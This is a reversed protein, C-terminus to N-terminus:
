VPYVSHNGVRPCEYRAQDVTMGTVEPIVAAVAAVIPERQVLRLPVLCQTPGKLGDMGPWEFLVSSAATEQSVVGSGADLIRAQLRLLEAYWEALLAKFAGIVPPAAVDLVATGVPIALAKMHPVVPREIRSAITRTFRTHADGLAEKSLLCQSTSVKVQQVM